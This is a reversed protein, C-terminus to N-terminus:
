NIIQQREVNKTEKESFSATLIHMLVLTSEPAPVDDLPVKGSDNSSTIPDFLQPLLPDTCSFQSPDFLMCSSM